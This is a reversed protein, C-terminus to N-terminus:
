GPRLSLLLAILSGLGGVFVTFGVVTGLAYGLLQLVQLAEPALEYGNMVRVIARM